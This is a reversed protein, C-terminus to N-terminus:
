NMQPAPVFNDNKYYMLELGFGPGEGTLTEFVLNGDVFKYKASYNARDPWDKCFQGFPDSYKVKNEAYKDPNWLCGYQDYVDDYGNNRSRFWSLKTLAFTVVDGSVTYTGYDKEDWAPMTQEYTGDAKFNFHVMVANNDGIEAKDRVGSWQGVISQGGQPEDKKCSGFAVLAVACLVLIKKMFM